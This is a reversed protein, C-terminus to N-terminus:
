EELIDIDIHESIDDIKADRWMFNGKTSDPRILRYEVQLILREMWHHLRKKGTLEEM